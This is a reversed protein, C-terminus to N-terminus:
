IQDLRAVLTETTSKMGETTMKINDGINKPLEAIQSDLMEQIIKKTDNVSEAKDEEKFTQQREM